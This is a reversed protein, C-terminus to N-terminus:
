AMLVARVVHAHGADLPWPHGGDECRTQAVGWSGVRLLALLKHESHHLELMLCVRLRIGPECPVQLYTRQMFGARFM